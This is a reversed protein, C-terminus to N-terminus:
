TNEGENKHKRRHTPLGYLSYRQGCDPCIVMVQARCDRCLPTKGRHKGRNIARRRGCRTCNAFDTPHTPM